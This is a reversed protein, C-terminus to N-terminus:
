SRLTIELVHTIRMGDWEYILHAGQWVPSLAPPRLVAVCEGAPDRVSPYAIGYEGDAWARRGFSQAASWDDPALLAKAETQGRLDILEGDLNALYVRRQLQIPPENSERVFREAHYKTEAIATDEARAAYYIGFTGDAFRSGPPAPYCFAAMIPTWGPGARRDEDRILHIEGAEQRLRSSTEGEYESLLDWDDPSGNVGEFLDVPPFRSPIIRYCPRWTVARHPFAM